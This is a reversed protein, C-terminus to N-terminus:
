RSRLERVLATVAAATALAYLVSSVGHWAAFATTHTGHALKEAEILPHLVWESTALLLAPALVLAVGARSLRTGGGLVFLALVLAIVVWNTEHFLQGAIQGALARDNLTAFLTPAVLAGVTLLVGALLALLLQRALRM